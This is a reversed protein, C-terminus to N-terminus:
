HRRKILKVNAEFPDNPHGCVDKDRYVDVMEWNLPTPASACVAVVTGVPRNDYREIAWVNWSNVMAPNAGQCMSADRTDDVLIWGKPIVAGRCVLKREGPKAAQAADSYQPSQARAVAPMVLVAFALVISRLRM